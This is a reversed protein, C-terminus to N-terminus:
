RVNKGTRRRRNLLMLGAPLLVALTAPEPIVQGQYLEGDTGTFLFSLDELPTQPKTPSGLSVSQGADLTFLETSGIGVAEALLSETSSFVVWDPEGRDAFSNWGGPDLNAAASSIQYGEFDVADGGPNVIWADGFPDVLLNLPGLPEASVAGAFILVSVACVTSFVAKAVM